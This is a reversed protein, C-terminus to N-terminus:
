APLTLGAAALLGALDPPITVKKQVEGATTPSSVPRCAATGAMLLIGLKVLVRM